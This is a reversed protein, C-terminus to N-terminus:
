KDPKRATTTVAMGPNAISEVFKKAAKGKATDPEPCDLGRLRLKEKLWHRPKLFIKMWLTDGDVFRLVEAHYTNFDSRKAGEAKQVVQKSRLRVFAGHKLGSAQETTLDVYSTFGVDVSISDGNPVLTSLRRSQRAQAGPMGVPQAGIRHTRDRPSNGGGIAPFVMREWRGTTGM